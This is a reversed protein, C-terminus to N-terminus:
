KKKKARNRKKKKSTNRKQKTKNKNVKRRNKNASKQNAAQTYQDIYMQIDAAQPDSQGDPTSLYASWHRTMSQTPIAMPTTYSRDLAIGDCSKTYRARISFPELDHQSCTCLTCPKAHSGVVEVLSANQSAVLLKQAAVGLIPAFSGSPYHMRTRAAVM